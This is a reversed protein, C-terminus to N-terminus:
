SKVKFIMKKFETQASICPAHGELPFFIVFMGKKCTIIDRSPVGPYLTMDNFENYEMEPLESCPLYGFSEDGSIPIQIDIMKQHTELVAEDPTKGKAEQVNVFLDEGKILHKGTELENLNTSQVFTLVEKFLPNLSIYKEFNDLLDIIM